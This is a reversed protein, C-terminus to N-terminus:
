LIFCRDFGGLREDDSSTTGYGILGVVVLQLTGWLCGIRCLM